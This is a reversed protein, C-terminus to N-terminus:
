KKHRNAAFDRVRVSKKWRPHKHLRRQTGLDLRSWIEDPIDEDYTTIWWLQLDDSLDDYLVEFSSCFIEEKQANILRINEISSLPAKHAIVHQANEPIRAQSFDLTVDDENIGIRALDEFLLKHIAYRLNRNMSALQPHDKQQDCPHYEPITRNWFPPSPIPNREPDLAWDLTETPIAGVMILSSEPAVSVDGNPLPGYKTKAGSGQVYSKIKSNLAKGTFVEPGGILWTRSPILDPIIDMVARAVDRRSVPAYRSSSRLPHPTGGDPPAVHAEIVEDHYCSVKLM